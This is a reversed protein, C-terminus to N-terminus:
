LENENLMFNCTKAEKPCDQNIRIGTFHHTVGKKSEFIGIVHITIFLLM